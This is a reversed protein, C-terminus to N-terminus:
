VEPLRRAGLAVAREGWVAEVLDRAAVRPRDLRAVVRQAKPVRLRVRLGRTDRAHEDEPVREGLALADLRLLRERPLEPAEQVVACGPAELHPVGAAAAEVEGLQGFGERLREHVLGVDHDVREGQVVSDLRRLEARALAEDVVPDEVALT